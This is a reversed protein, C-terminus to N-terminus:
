RDEYRATTSCIRYHTRNFNEMSIAAQPAGHGVEGCVSQAVRLRPEPQAAASLVVAEGESVPLPHGRVRHLSVFVPNAMGTPVCGITEDQKSSQVGWVSCFNQGEASSFRSFIEGEFM